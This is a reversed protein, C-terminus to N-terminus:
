TVPQLPRKEILNERWWRDLETVQAFVNKRIATNRPKSM